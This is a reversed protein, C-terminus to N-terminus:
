WTAASFSPVTILTNVTECQLLRVGSVPGNVPYFFPYKEDESFIYSTFFKNDITVNIKSGVKEAAIKAASLPVTIFSGAFLM